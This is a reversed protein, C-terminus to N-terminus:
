DERVEKLAHKYWEKHLRMALINLVSWVIDMNIKAVPGCGKDGCYEWSTRPSEWIWRGSAEVVVTEYNWTKLVEVSRVKWEVDSMWLCQLVRFNPQFRGITSQYTRKQGEWFRYQNVQERPHSTLLLCWCSPAASSCLIISEQQSIARSVDLIFNAFNLSFIQIKINDWPFKTSACKLYYCSLIQNLYFWILIILWLPM